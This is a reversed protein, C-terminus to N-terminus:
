DLSEKAKKVEYHVYGKKNDDFKKFNRFRDGVGAGGTGGGGLRDKNGYNGERMQNDRPHDRYTIDETNEAGISKSIWNKINEKKENSNLQKVWIAIAVEKEKISLQIGCLSETDEFSDGIFALVLDEWCRNSMEKKLRIMFRGGHANSPDEWMPKIGKQFFSFAAQPPLLSPRIMHSYYQWFELATHFVGVEIITEDYKSNPIKKRNNQDQKPEPQIQEKPSTFWIVFEKALLVAGENNEQNKM